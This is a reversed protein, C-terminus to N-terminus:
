ASIEWSRGSLPTCFPWPRAWPVLGRDGPNSQGQVFGGVAQWARGFVDNDLRSGRRWSGWWFRASIPLIQWTCGEPLAAPPVGVLLQVSVGCPPVLSCGKRPVAGPSGREEVLLSIGRQNIICLTPLPKQFEELGRTQPECSAWPKCPEKHGSGQARCGPARISGSLLEAAIENASPASM